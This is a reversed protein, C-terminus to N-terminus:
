NPKRIVLIHCIKYRKELANFQAFVECKQLTYKTSQKSNIICIDFDIKFFEM